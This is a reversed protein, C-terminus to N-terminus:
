SLSLRDLSLFAYQQTISLLRYNVHLQVNSM